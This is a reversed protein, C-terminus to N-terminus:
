GPSGRSSRSWPYSWATPAPPWTGATPSCACEAPSGWWTSTTARETPTCTSPWTIPKTRPWCCTRAARSLQPCTSCPPRSWRSPSGCRTTPARGPTLEFRGFGRNLAAISAIRAGNELLEGEVNAPNHSDNTGQFYVVNRQGLILQGGEPYLAFNVHDQAIPITKTKSEAFGGAKVIVSLNAQGSTTKPLDFAVLFQGQDTAKGTRRHIEKGDVRAVATLSAGRLPDGTDRSVEFLAEVRDGAAYSKRLFELSKKFQPAQYTSVMIRETREPGDRGAVRLVYEGGVASEPLDFAPQTEGARRDIWTTAVVSGSPAVLEVQMPFSREKHTAADVSWAKFWITEGPRYLPKDTQFHAKADTTLALTDEIKRNVTRPPRSVPAWTKPGAPADIQAPTPPAYPSEWPLDVEETLAIDGAPVRAVHTDGTGPPSGEPAESPDQPDHALSDPRVRVPDATRENSMLTATLLAAAAATLGIAAWTRWDRFGVPIQTPASRVAHMVGDVQESDLNASVYHTTLDSVLALIPQSHKHCAACSLTHSLDPKEAEGEVYLELTNLFEHCNM